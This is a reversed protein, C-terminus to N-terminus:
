YFVEFIKLIYKSNCNNNVTGNFDMDMQIDLFEEKLQLHLPHQPHKKLREKTINLLEKIKALLSNSM